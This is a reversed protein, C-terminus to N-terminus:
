IIRVRHMGELAGIKETIAAAVDAALVGTTEVLTYANDGKSKNTLNEINIGYGSLVGSINAIVAPINAHLACIRTGDGMPIEVSPYNVSNRINGTRLYADLQRAAM